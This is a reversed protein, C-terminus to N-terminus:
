FSLLQNPPARPIRVMCEAEAPAGQGPYKAVAYSISIFPRATALPHSLWEAPTNAHCFLCSAEQGNDHRHLPACFSAVLLVSLCILACVRLAGRDLALKPLM